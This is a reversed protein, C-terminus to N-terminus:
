DVSISNFSILKDINPRGGRNRMNYNEIPLDPNPEITWRALEM